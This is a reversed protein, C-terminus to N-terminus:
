EEQQIQHALRYFDMFPVVCYEDTIYFGKRINLFSTHGDLFALNHWDERGHWEALKKWEEVPHPSPRVQNVWGYDGILLLSSPNDVGDINVDPLRKNIEEHLIGFKNSPIPLQNQGILMVNTQYSTGVARFVKERLLPGPPLGSRDAPCCFLKAGDETELEGLLGAYTNLPRYSPWSISPTDGKIGKWGGYNMNANRRQLFAGNNDDLYAHWALTIQRLNSQCVIRKAVTHAKRVAPLMIALLMAIVAIVVLLEVLTFGSHHNTSQARGSFARVM